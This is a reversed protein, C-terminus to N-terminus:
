SRLFLEAAIDIEGLYRPDLRRQLSSEHIVAAVAVTKEGEVFDMGVVVLQRHGLPLRELAFFLAVRLGGNVVVFRGRRFAVIVCGALVAAARLRMAVHSRGIAATMIVAHVIGVAIMVVIVLIGIRDLLRCREFGRKRHRAIGGFDIVVAGLHRFRRTVIDDLDFGGLDVDAEIGLVVIVIIFVGCRRGPLIAPATSAPMIAMALVEVLHFGDAALVGELLQRLAVAAAAADVLDLLDDLAALDHQDLHDLFLAAIFARRQRGIHRQGAAVGHQHRVGAGAAADGPLDRGGAVALPEAFDGGLEVDGVSHAQDDAGGSRGAGLGLDLPVVFIEQPQPLIDALQRQIRAGRGEDIFLAIQDLARDAIEVAAIDVLYQDGAVVGIAVGLVEHPHQHGAM